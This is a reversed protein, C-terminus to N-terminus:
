ALIWGVILYHSNYTTEGCMRQVKDVKAIVCLVYSSITNDLVLNHM